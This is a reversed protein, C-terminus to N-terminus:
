DERLFDYNKQKFRKGAKQSLWEFDERVKEEGMAKMITFPGEKMILAEKVGYDLEEMSSMGKQYGCIAGNLISFLLRKGILAEKENFNEYPIFRDPNRYFDPADDMPQDKEYLYIGRSLKKGLRNEALLKKPFLPLYFGKKDDPAYLTAESRHDENWRLPMVSGPVSTRRLAGILFDIGIVDMSECPGM